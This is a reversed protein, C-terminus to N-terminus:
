FSVTEFFNRETAQATFPFVVEVLAWWIRELLLGFHFQFVQWVTRSLHGALTLVWRYSSIRCERLKNYAKTLWETPDGELIVCGGNAAQRV